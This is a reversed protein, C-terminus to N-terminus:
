KTEMASDDGQSGVGRGWPFCSPSLSRYLSLSFSLFLSLPLALSLALPPLPRCEASCIGVTPSAARLPQALLLGRQEEVILSGKEPTGAGRMLAYASVWVHGRRCACVGKFNALEWHGWADVWGRVM